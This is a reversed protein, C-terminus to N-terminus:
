PGVSRGLAATGATSSATELLRVLGSVKAQHEISIAVMLADDIDAGVTLVGHHALLVANRSGLADAVSLGLEASGPRAPGVVRMGATGYYSAEALELDGPRRLAGWATAWLSHTHIVAGVDSRARYIAAHMAFESSPMRGSRTGVTDRDLLILDRARVKDLRARTPTILVRDRILVSANGSTAQTLRAAVVAHAAAVLRRRAVCHMQLFVM